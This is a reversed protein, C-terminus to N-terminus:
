SPSGTNRDIFAQIADQAASKDGAFDAVHEVGLATHVESKSLGQSGCWAWFRKRTDVDEIWHPTSDFEIDPATNFEEHTLPEDRPAELAPPDIIQVNPITEVETEDLMGLGCISLTVRRKAKTVAKM